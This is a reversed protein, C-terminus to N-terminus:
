KLNDKKQDTSKIDVYEQLVGSDKRCTGTGGWGCSRLYKLLLDPVFLNDIYVVYRGILPKPLRALLHPVVAATKNGQRGKGSKSGGLEPPVIVGVPGGSKGKAHWIWQLFFGGQAIVWVKYSTPIPKGPITTTEHSRGEFRAM